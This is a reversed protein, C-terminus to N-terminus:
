TQTAAAYRDTVKRLGQLVQARDGVVEPERFLRLAAIHVEIAASSWRGLARLRDVLDCLSFAAEGLEAMGFVGAVGHIENAMQYIADEVAPEPKQGGQVHLRVIEDLRQDLAAVCEGRISDLNDAARQLADVVKMGGPQQIMKTLRNEWPIRIVPSM